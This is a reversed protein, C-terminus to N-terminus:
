QKGPPKNEYMKNWDAISYTKDGQKVGTFAGKDDMTITFNATMMPRDNDGPLSTFPGTTGANAPSVGIFLQTGKTDAIMTEASPFGDGTQVARVQLTGAKDNGTLTFKTHVDIDPSGPVLPLHGAM